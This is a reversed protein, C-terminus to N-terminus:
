RYADCAHCECFALGNFIQQSEPKLELSRGRKRKGITKSADKQGNANSTKTDMIPTDIIVQDSPKFSVTSHFSSREVTDAQWRNSASPQPLPASVTRLFSQGPRPSHDLNNGPVRASVDSSPALRSERLIVVADSRDEEGSDEEDLRYLEDFLTEKEKEVMRLM